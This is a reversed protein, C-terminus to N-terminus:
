KVQVAELSGRGEYGDAVNTPTPEFNLSLSKENLTGQALFPPRPMEVFSGPEVIEITLNGNKLVGSATTLLRRKQATGKGKLDFWVSVYDGFTLIKITGGAKFQTRRGAIGGTFEFDAKNVQFNQLKNNAAAFDVSLDKLPVLPVVAVNFPTTIEQTVMMGKGPAVIAIGYGNTTKKVEVTFGGTPKEGAFGAIVASKTFDITSVEPLGEVLKQLEAYTKADRVVFVFPKDVKSHAGKVLTKIDKSFGLGDFDKPKIPSVVKKQGFVTLSSFILLIFAFIKFTNKM